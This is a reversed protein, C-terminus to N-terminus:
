VLAQPLLPDPMAAGATYTVVVALIPDRAQPSWIGCPLWFHFFFIFFKYIFVNFFFGLVMFGPLFAMVSDDGKGEGSAFVAGLACLINVVQLSHLAM